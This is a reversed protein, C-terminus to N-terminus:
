GARTFVVALEGDISTVIVPRDVNLVFRELPKAAPLPGLGAWLSYDKNDISCPNWPDMFLCYAGPSPPGYFPDNCAGSMICANGAPDTVCETVGPVGIPNTACFFYSPDNWVGREWGCAECALARGSAGLGLVSILMACYLRRKNM